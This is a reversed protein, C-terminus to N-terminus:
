EARVLRTVRGTAVDYRWGEVALSVPLAPSRRLVEVDGALAADPDPMALLSWDATSEASRASLGARLDADTRGALACDSHHMVVIHTVGLYTTALLLSRLADDTVRGGANRIIKADGPRLGLAALPEIRTDICTVLALGRGARGTLGGLRFDAAYASNAADLEDFIV